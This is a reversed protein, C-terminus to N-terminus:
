LTRIAEFKIVRDWVIQMYTFARDFRAKLM